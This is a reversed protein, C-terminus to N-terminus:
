LKFDTVRLFYNIKQSFTAPLSSWVSSASIEASTSQLLLVIKVHRTQSFFHSPKWIAAEWMFCIWGTSFLSCSVPQGIQGFVKVFISWKFFWTQLCTFRTKGPVELCLSITVLVKPIYNCFYKELKEQM